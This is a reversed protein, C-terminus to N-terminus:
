WHYGSGTTVNRRRFIADPMAAVHTTDGDYPKYVLPDDNAEADVPGRRSELFEVQRDAMIDLNSAYWADDETGEAQHRNRIYDAAAWMSCVDHAIAYAEPDEAEVFPLDYIRRLRADFRKEAEDVFKQVVVIDVSGLSDADLYEQAKDWTTYAM